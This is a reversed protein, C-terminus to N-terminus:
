KEVKGNSVHFELKLKIILPCKMQQTWKLDALDMKYTCLGFYSGLDSLLSRLKLLKDRRVPLLVKCLETNYKLLPFLNFGFIQSDLAVFINRILM